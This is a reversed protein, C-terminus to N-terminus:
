DPLVQQLPEAPCGYDHLSTQKLKRAADELSREVAAKIVEVTAPCLSKRVQDCAINLSPGAPGQIIACSSSDSGQYLRVLDSRLSVNSTMLLGEFLAFAADDMRNVAAFATAIQQYAEANLPHLLVAEGAANAAEATKGLKQYAAVLLWHADPDGKSSAPAVSHRRAWEAGGKRDYEARTSKDIEVSRLLLQLAREYASVSGHPDTGQLSDGKALYYGGANSYVGPTNLRDPLSDLIALSKESEQIARDLNSDPGEAYLSAAINHVKFSLPSTRLNAEVM